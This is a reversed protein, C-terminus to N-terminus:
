NNDLYQFVGHYWYCKGWLPHKISFDLKFQQDSIPTEIITASGLVLWDPFTVRFEGYQWIHGNSRYILCGDEVSVKLRLGFGFRVTEILEHDQLYVMQSYFYNKKNDPYTLTRKWHLKTQQKSVTKEVLTHIEKGRWLVLGSCLHILSILPLLFTPFGIEMNGQLCTPAITSISYHRQIVSPLKDWDKGLTKQLLAINKMIIGLVSILSFGDHHYYKAYCLLRACRAVDM